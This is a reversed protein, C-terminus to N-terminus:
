CTHERCYDKLSPPAPVKASDGSVSAKPERSASPSGAQQGTPPASPTAVAPSPSETTSETAMVPASLFLLILGFNTIRRKM